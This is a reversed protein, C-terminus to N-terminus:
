NSPTRALAQEIRRLLAPDDPTTRSSFQALVQGDRGVLYKHFNWGPATGSATSLAAFVPNAQPGTVASRAFMPFRVGFTNTCFEAIEKNSGPEQNGFDNSPFGLVAFGRPALRAHLAELGEYQGTYGCRSATNVILLVKGAYQCLHQPLEDQLRPMRVDLLAPCGPAQGAGPTTSAAPGAACAQAIGSCMLASALLFHIRTRPM